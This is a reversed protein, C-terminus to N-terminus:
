HLPFGRQLRFDFGMLGRDAVEGLAQIPCFTFFRGMRLPCAHGFRRADSLSSLLRATPPMTPTVTGREGDHNFDAIQTGRLLVAWDTPFCEPRKRTRFLGSHNFDLDLRM